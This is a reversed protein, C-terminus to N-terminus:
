RWGHYLRRATPKIRMQHENTACRNTCLPIFFSANFKLYFYLYFNSTGTFHATSSMMLVPSPVSPRLKRGGRERELVPVKEELRELLVKNKKNAISVNGISGSAILRHNLRSGPRHSDM